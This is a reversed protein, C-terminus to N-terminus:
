FRNSNGNNFEKLTKQFDESLHSSSIRVQIIGNLYEDSLLVNRQVQEMLEMYSLDGKTKCLHLIRRSFREAGSEAILQQLQPSSSWYDMWDSQVVQLRRKKKGKLPPRKLTKWFLKKGVYKKDTQTDTILYVFGAMDEPPNQFPEDNYYWM